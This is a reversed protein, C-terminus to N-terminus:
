DEKENLPEFKYGLGPYTVIIRPDKPDRELKERLRRVYVDVIRSWPYIEENPWIKKKIYDRSLVKGKNKCFLELLEFEKKTLRIKKGNVFVEKNVPLIKLYGFDYEKAAKGYSRELHVRIRAALELFEFPKLVYDCAGCEFGKLKDSLGDRVTLIIIPLDGNERIEKCVELGDMDPLNLDLIVIDPRYDEFKKLAESGNDATIAKYGENELQDKLIRQIDKDDEVVLVKYKM